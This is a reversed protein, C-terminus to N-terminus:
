FQSFQHNSLLQRDGRFGDEARNESASGTIWCIVIRRQWGSAEQPRSSLALHSVPLRPPLLLSSPHPLPLSLQSRGAQRAKRVANGRCFCGWCVGLVVGADALPVGVESTESVWLLDIADEGWFDPDWSQSAGEGLKQTRFTWKKGKM